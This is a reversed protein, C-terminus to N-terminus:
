EGSAHGRRVYEPIKNGPHYSVGGGAKGAGTTHPATGSIRHEQYQGFKRNLQIIWREQVEQPLTSCKRLRMNQTTFRHSPMYHRATDM